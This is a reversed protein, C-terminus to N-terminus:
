SVVLIFASRHFFCFGNENESGAGEFDSLGALEIVRSRLGDLRKFLLTNPDNEDIRVDCRNLRILFKGTDHVKKGEGFLKCCLDNLFLPWVPYQKTEATLGREIETEREFFGAGQLSVADANEARRDCRNAVGFVAVEKHLTQIFDTNFRRSAM